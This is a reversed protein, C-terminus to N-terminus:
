ETNKNLANIFTDSLEKLPATYFCSENGTHCTPGVPLVKALIADSDCDTLIEVVKLYNGSTEGKEWLKKRSRSYFWVHPGKITRRLAEKNMWAVMLVKLSQYDQIVAPILDPHNPINDTM